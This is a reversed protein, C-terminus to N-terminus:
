GPRFVRGSAQMASDPLKVQPGRGGTAQEEAVQKIRARLAVVRDQYVTAISRRAREEDDLDIAALQRDIERLESAFQAHMGANRLAAEIDAVEQGVLVLLQAAPTPRVLGLLESLRYVLEELNHNALQWDALNRAQFAGLGHTEIARLRARYHHAPERPREGSSGSSASM